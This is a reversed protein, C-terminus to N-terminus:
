ADDNREAAQLLARPASEAAEPARQPQATDARKRARRRTQFPTDLPNVVFALRLVQDMHEIYTIQLRRRVHRPVEDLEHANKKPLLVHTIGARYAGLVKEKIGGVPLVRGRLTIEGTMAVTRRLATNTLASILACAITVGASPGDKPVASDPVHVHLDVKDFRRPDIGLRRANARTYSLAAQASEQMIEGLQGTLTLNGKGDYVSVEVPLVDGGNATWVMGTAVGVEDREEALGYDYRDPGLLRPLLSPIIRRPYPRGEAVRRAIKRCVAGIQRELERVGAEYTYRRILTRLAAESFQLPTHQLGSALRQQPVLFRRAIALKEEETYGALEIVELRDVLADPVPDLVNATTIFLVRSLDYPVDLYHDVFAHNQEPDLVELLASAPDGRVDRGLKDIEDLMLVPNVTGAERMVKLIRGPMAGIYTRRHGRIEAEDHVGGLSIRVFARGLAEAISRGLSTKGVGPPGVFCLIPARRQPGNLKRVALYELIREKVRTLGHHNRELVRAAAQLDVQDDSAQQWPLALLWDLYTRALVFEPAGPPMAELRSLEERARSQIAPPMGASAIREQLAALEQSWPDSQGLERQIAKLQERLFAERQLHGVAREVEARLQQELQLVEVERMLLAAVHRLRQEVDTLELVQQRQALELPLHSAILDALLGPAEVNLAAVYANEPLARSLAAVREFLALTTRRLAELVLSREPPDPLPQIRAYLYPQEQLVADIAARWLGQALINCSGDPLRVVRSIRVQVGMPYLDGAAIVTRDVSRQAVALVMREGALAAELARQAQAQSVVVPVVVQPFVLTSELPLVPLACVAPNPVSIREELLVSGERDDSM